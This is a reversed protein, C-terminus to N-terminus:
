HITCIHLSEQMETTIKMRNKWSLSFSLSMEDVSFSWLMGEVKKHIQQFLAGNSIYEYVLLPIETELCCGLFKVM